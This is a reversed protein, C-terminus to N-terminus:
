LVALIICRQCVLLLLPHPEEGPTALFPMLMCFDNGLESDLAASPRCEYPSTCLLQIMNLASYIDSATLFDRCQKFGYSNSSAKLILYYIENSSLTHGITEYLM